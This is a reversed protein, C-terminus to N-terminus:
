PMGQRVEARRQAPTSSDASKGANNDPNSRQALFPDNIAKGLAKQSKRNAAASKEAVLRDLDARAKKPTDGVHLMPYKPHLAEAQAIKDQAVEYKGESM